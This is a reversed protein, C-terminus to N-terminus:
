NTATIEEMLTHLVKMAVEKERGSLNKLRSSVAYEPIGNGALEDATIGMGEALRFFMSLSPDRKGRELNGLHNLSVDLKEAFQAQTLHHEERYKRMRERTYDLDLM